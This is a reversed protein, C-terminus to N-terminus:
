KTAEWGGNMGFEINKRFPFVVVIQQTTLVAGSCGDPRAVAEAAQGCGRYGPWHRQPRALAETAHMAVTETAQDVPREQIQVSALHAPLPM